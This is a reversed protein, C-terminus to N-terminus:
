WTSLKAYEEKAALAEVNKLTLLPAKRFTKGHVPISSHYCRISSVAAINSVQLSQLLFQSLASTVHKRNLKIVGSSSNYIAQM